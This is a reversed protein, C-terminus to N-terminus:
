KRNTDLIVARIEFKWPFKVYWTVIYESWVGSVLVGLIPHAQKSTTWRPQHIKTTFHFEGFWLWQFMAWISRRCQNCGKLWVCGHLRRLVTDAEFIEFIFLHINSGDYFWMHNCISLKKTFKSALPEDGSVMFMSEMILVDTNQCLWSRHLWFIEGYWCGFSILFYDFTEAFCFIIFMWGDAMRPQFSTAWTAVLAQNNTRVIGAQDFTWPMPLNHRFCWPALQFGKLSHLILTCKVGSEDTCLYEVIVNWQNAWIQKFNPHQVVALFSCESNSKDCSLQEEM